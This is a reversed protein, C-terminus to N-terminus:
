EVLGIKSFPKKLYSRMFKNAWAPKSCQVEQDRDGSYGPNCAHAVPAQIWKTSNISLMQVNPSKM